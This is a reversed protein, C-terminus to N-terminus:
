LYKAELRILTKFRYITSSANIEYEGLIDM